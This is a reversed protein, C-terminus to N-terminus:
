VMTADGAAHESYSAAIATAPTLLCAFPHGAPCYDMPLHCAIGDLFAHEDVMRLHASRPSIALHLNLYLLHKTSPPLLLLPLIPCLTASLGCSINFTKHGSYM